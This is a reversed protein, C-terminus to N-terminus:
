SLGLYVMNTPLIIQIQKQGCESSSEVTTSRVGRCDAPPGLAVAPAAPASPSPLTHGPLHVVSASQHVSPALAADPIGLNALLLPSSTLNARINLIRLINCCQILTLILEQAQYNYLLRDSTSSFRM